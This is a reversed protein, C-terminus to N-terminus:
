ARPVNHEGGAENNNELNDPNAAVPSVRLKRCIKRKVGLDGGNGVHRRYSKHAKKRKKAERGGEGIRDGDGNGDEDENGYGSSSDSGGRSGDGNGDQTQGRTEM